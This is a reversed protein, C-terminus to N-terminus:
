IEPTDKPNRPDTFALVKGFRAQAPGLVSGLVTCWATYAVGAAIGAPVGAMAAIVAGFCSSYVARAALGARFRGSRVPMRWWPPLAPQQLRDVSQQWKEGKTVVALKPKRRAEHWTVALIGLEGGLATMLLLGAWLPLVWLVAACAAAWDCLVLALFAATLLLYAAGRRRMVRQWARGAYDEARDEADDGYASGGM